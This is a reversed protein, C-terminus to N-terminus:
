DSRIPLKRLVAGIGGSYRAVVLANRSFAAAIEQRLRRWDLLLPEVPFIARASQVAIGGRGRGGGTSTLAATTAGAAPSGVAPQAIAVDGIGKHGAKRM